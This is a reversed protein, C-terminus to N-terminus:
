LGQGQIAGLLAMLTFKLNCRKKRQESFLSIGNAMLRDFPEGRVTPPGTIKM